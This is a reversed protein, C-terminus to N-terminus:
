KMWSPTSDTTLLGYILGVALVVIAIVMVMPLIGEFKEALHKPKHHQVEGSHPETSM